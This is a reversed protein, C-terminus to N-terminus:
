GRRSTPQARLIAGGSLPADLGIALARGDTVVAQGAECLPVLEPAAARLADRVTSGPPLSYPRENVFVRLGTSM